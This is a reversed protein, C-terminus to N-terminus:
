IVCEQWGGQARPSGPLAVLTWRRHSSCVATAAYGGREEIRRDETFDLVVVRRFNVPGDAHNM